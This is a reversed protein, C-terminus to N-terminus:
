RGDIAEQIVFAVRAWTNYIPTNDTMLREALAKVRNIQAENHMVYTTTHDHRIVTSTAVDRKETRHVAHKQLRAIWQKVLGREGFRGGVLWYAFTLKASDWWSAPVEFTVTKHGTTEESTTTEERREANVTVSLRLVLDLRAEDMITEFAMSQVINRDFHQEACLRLREMPVASAYRDNIKTLTPVKDFDRTWPESM